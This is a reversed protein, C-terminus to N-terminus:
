AAEEERLAAGLERRGSAAGDIALFLLALVAVGALPVILGPWTPRLTVPAASGTFVNLGLVPGIVEVLLWSAAVTGIAAVAVLPVADTLGLAFAQRRAMGLAALRDLMVARSRASAALAFAAALASLLAAALAGILYLQESLHLAPSAVLESYVQRRLTVQSGPLLRAAVERLAQLNIATGTLLVISPPLISPLRAAAWSPLLVYQGGTPKAPTDTITGAIRVPLTIGGVNVRLNGRGIRAAVGPTVLIPVLAASRHQALADAPFGPWPTDAAVAGYSVPDVVALGVPIEASKGSDLAGALPGYSPATYVATAHRVGAVQEIVRLDAVTVSTTGKATIIADGGVQAWSAALQGTSIAAVVMASFATLTLTLILALAPLV